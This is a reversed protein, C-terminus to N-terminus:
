RASARLCCMLLSRALNASSCYLMSMRRWYSLPLLRRKILHLMGDVGVRWKRWVVVDRM